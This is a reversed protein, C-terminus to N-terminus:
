KISGTLLFIKKLGHSQIMRQFFLIIRKFLNLNSDTFDKSSDIGLKSAIAIFIIVGVFSDFEISFHPNGLMVHATDFNKVFNSFFNVVKSKSVLDPFIEFDSIFKLFEALHLNSKGDSYLLFIKNMCPNIKICFDNINSDKFIKDLLSLNYVERELFPKIDNFCPRVYNEIFIGFYNQLDKSDTSLLIDSNWKKLPETKFKDNFIKNSLCLLIKLFSNFNIKKNSEKQHHSINSQPKITFTESSFKSFLLNLTNFTLQNNIEKDFTKIHTSSKSKSIIHTEKLFSFPRFEQIKKKEKTGNESNLLGCSKIFKMFGNSNMFISYNDDSYLDSFNKYVSILIDKYKEFFISNLEINREIENKIPYKIEHIHNHTYSISKSESALLKENHTVCISKSDSVFSKEKDNRIVCKKEHNYYDPFIEKIASTQYFSNILDL